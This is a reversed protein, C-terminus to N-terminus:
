SKLHTPKEQMEKIYEVWDSSEGILDVLSIFANPQRKGTEGEDLVMKGQQIFRESILELSTASCSGPDSCMTPMQYQHTAVSEEELKRKGKLNKETTSPDTQNNPPITQAAFLKRRKNEENNVAKHRLSAVKEELIEQKEKLKKIEWNLLDNEKKLLELEKEMNRSCSSSDVGPASSRTRHSNSRYIRKINGLLHKEGKRFYENKYEWQEWSIKKFGYSNLQTIFSQFNRHKFYIPLVNVAFLQPNMVVFSTGARGSGSEAGNIIDTESADSDLVVLETVAKDPDKHKGGNNVVGNEEEEAAMIPCM